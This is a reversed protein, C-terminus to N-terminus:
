KIKIKVTAKKKSGDTSKATITVAKGKGAKKATVKGKSNVTAYKKNSSMWKLSKNANKGTTKVTAKITMTKGAKLTKKPAKLKISKVAHKMIKFRYTAKAKSSGRATATITVTRGVGAKKITITGNKNVSAYKKNSSKWKVAAAPAGKPTTKLTLKVKKGAALKKSPGKVSLKKIAKVTITVSATRTAGGLTYSVTLTKKGPTNMNINSANTTYEGTKLEKASHRQYTATVKLDDTTLSEGTYYVTRGKSAQLTVPIREEGAEGSTGDDTTAWIASSLNIHLAPCVGVFDNELYEYGVRGSRYNVAVYFRTNSSSRLWWECSDGYRDNSDGIWVDRANAYDSAKMKRSMSYVYFESCFGYGENTVEGISLFYIKDNTNNGGPAEHIPNNENVVNQVVVASQENRSFATNYFSTNLWNRITSTEWTVNISKENYKKCDIAKDAVVFLTKGDNKLVKWKIREWKFYRYGNNPVKDFFSGRITDSKSIRRYKIGNVWVDVGTDSVTGSMAIAKEIAAITASDTVNSQPYSGFYVYSFDTYDSGDDEMTCHHIPNAPGTVAGAPIEPLSQGSVTDEIIDEEDESDNEETAEPKEEPEAGLKEETESEGGEFHQNESVTGNEGLVFDSFSTDTAEEEENPRNDSVTKALVPMEGTTLLLTGALLLSLFRTIQKKM